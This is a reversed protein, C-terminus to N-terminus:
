GEWGRAGMFIRRSTGRVPRLGITQPTFDGGVTIIGGTIIIGAVIVVATGATTTAAVATIAGGMDMDM